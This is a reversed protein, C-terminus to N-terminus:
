GWPDGGARAGGDVEAELVPLPVSSVAVMVSAAAEPSSFGSPL